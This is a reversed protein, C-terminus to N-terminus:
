AAARRALIVSKKTISEITFGLLALRAKISNVDNGTGIQPHCEVVIKAIGPFDSAALLAGEGGEIDCILVTPAHRELVEHLSIAPVRVMSGGTDLLTSSRWFDAALSLSAWGRKLIEADGTLMGQIVLVDRIGSLHLTHQLGGILFPNAEVCCYLKPKCTLSIHAALLGMGGGLELVVDDPGVVSSAATAEEIEYQGAEIARAIEPTILGPNHAFRLGFAPYHRVEYGSLDNDIFKSEADM